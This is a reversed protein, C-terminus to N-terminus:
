EVGVLEDITVNFYKALVILYSMTPERKGNEWLSIIGKSVGIESALRVQGIGASIRLYKLNQAFSNKYEM